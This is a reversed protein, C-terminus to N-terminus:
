SGQKRQIPWYSNDTSKKNETKVGIKEYYLEMCDCQHPEELNYYICKEGPKTNRATFCRCASQKVFNTENCTNIVGFECLSEKM